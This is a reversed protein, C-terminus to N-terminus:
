GHIYHDISHKHQLHLNWIEHSCWPIHVTIAFLHEDPFYDDIIPEQPQHTLTSLFDAVLNAKGPKDIITIDFEEMLLLWRVLRGFVVPKNM